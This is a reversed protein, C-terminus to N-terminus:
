SHTSARGIHLGRVMRDWLSLADDSDVLLLRAYQAYTVAAIATDYFVPSVYAVYALWGMLNIVMSAFFLSQLDDCLAGRLAFPVIRFLAYDGLMASGHYVLMGAPSNEVSSVAHTHLVIVLALLLCFAARQPWDLRIV